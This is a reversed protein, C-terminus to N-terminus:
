KSGGATQLKEMVQDLSFSAPKQRPPYEKFTALFKGVYAQAPVLFFAHDLLWDYYTNSTINAREYPDRRLNFILPLRLPVFPESWAQLTAEARQEMFILKWDKYRLATLDGDDSFYFIEERPGEKEQGTLYPLFNYGDLHVRYSRGIAKVGGEKLAEKIDPKGAAALFTPLWDMHHMIENSVTGAKINGPWRAMAPVRWGGEWNTNKEGRFPTMGADPWTNMHVGNDTSYFVITNDAINLDDLKKLLQGVHMDHEVMGDAYEDQGSIGRLEEKVHTRFHMRTGNWWVFFPKGAKNARDIFDLASALTEDDVTEMRKKTLPGTDEIKGGAFSKIVGRPGYRKRFEPNKPYDPLEPEEEANLHYLNGFFEDFGHNTPLHEDKDGLHNKGFQGTAYGQAKLLAAITPDEEKMGLDAGPLGVKSLGTRFVSQGTIFASRGATCSQEGYYDTFMMGEQAIRDINPTKYGVLGFTYTSINTQGIDDGWIVLINPKSAASVPGISFILPILLVVLILQLQNRKM